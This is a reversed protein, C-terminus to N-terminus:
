LNTKTWDDVWSRCKAPAPSARQSCWLQVVPSILWKSHLKPRLSSTMLACLLKLLELKRKLLIRHFPVWFSRFDIGLFISSYNAVLQDISVIENVLISITSIELVCSDPGGQGIMLGCIRVHHWFFFFSSHLFYTLFALFTKLRGRADLEGPNCYLNYDSM